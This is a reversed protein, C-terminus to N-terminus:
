LGKQRAFIQLISTKLTKMFWRKSFVKQRKYCILTKSIPTKATKRTHPLAIKLVFMKKGTTNDKSVQLPLAKWYLNSLAVAHRSANWAKELKHCILAQFNVNKGNKTHTAVCNEHCVNKTSPKDKLVQLPLAKWYLNSLAVAHRWANWANELKHCIM